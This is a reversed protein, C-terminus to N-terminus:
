QDQVHKKRRCYDIMGVFLVGCLVGASDIFVDEIRGYRNPQFRQHIEDTVAYTTGILWPLYWQMLGYSQLLLALLLGLLAYECFHATKRIVLEIQRYLAVEEEATFARNQLRMVLDTVPRTIIGSLSSSEDGSQSSFGFIAAMLLLTAIWLLARIIHRKMRQM